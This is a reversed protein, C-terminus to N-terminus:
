IVFDILQRLLEYAQGDPIYDIYKITKSQDTNSYDDKSISKKHNSKKPKKIKLSISTYDVSPKLSISYAPIDLLATNYPVTSTSDDNKTISCIKKVIKIFDEKNEWM